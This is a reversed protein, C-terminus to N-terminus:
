ITSQKGLLHLAMHEFGLVVLFIFIFIKFILEEPPDLNLAVGPLYKKRSGIEFCGM